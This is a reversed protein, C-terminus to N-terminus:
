RNELNLLYEKMDKGGAFGCLTGNSAIVRHCPIIIPLPNRGLAGGVARSATPKGIQKAIDGYSATHGYTILRTNELVSRQFSTLPALNLKDTFVPNLGAFYAQLNHITNEFHKQSYQANAIIGNLSSIALIRTKQPLTTRLLGLFSGAIGIWGAKTKFIAYHIINNPM